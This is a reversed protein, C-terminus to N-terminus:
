VVCCGTLNYYEEMAENMIKMDDEYQKYKIQQKIKEEEEIQQIMLELFECVDYLGQKIGSEKVLKLAEELIFKPSTVFDMARQHSHKWEAERIEEETVNHM